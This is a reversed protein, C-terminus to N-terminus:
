DRPKSPIAPRYPTQPDDAATTAFDEKNPLDRDWFAVGM